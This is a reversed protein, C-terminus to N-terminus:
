SKIKKNELIIAEYEELQFYSHVDKKIHKRQEDISFILKIKDNEGPFPIKLIEESFNLYIHYNQGKTFRKYSLCKNELGPIEIFELEGIKLAPSEKRVEILRKYFNLISNSKEKQKEVNITQYNSSVKLWTNTNNNTSFGANPSNNWQMPTRCGDRSLAFGMSKIQSLPFWSYKKGIPDESNKLKVKVNRMGIEEGYYIFPVGRLTLQMTALIKAKRTDGKLRSIFRMRDHNGLVYTPTIPKPFDKEIQSIVNRFKKPNFGTSTFKFLFIMNLGNNEPGYYRKLESLTGFVEGVLFRTPDYSDILKRLEVALEYTEPQNVDYKHDQFFSATNEDSPLIQFTFPNDKFEKDEYIAHFIDLRFGDVGKDLWFKVVNFMEKKVEPNRYNLDPQFPLFQHYVWQDTNEFYKWATGGVEAKWNNPPKKGNPKQGDKWIYWDRKPNDKNTSSEQFWPHQDSTHNLVLDLVMRMDNNHIKELLENFDEMTGYEPDINRYSQVDYGHDGQPSVFFPSFWIAEVGLDKIYDLKNIIGRLDGIGNGTSDKFSRPYIQYVVTKKWWEDEIDSM